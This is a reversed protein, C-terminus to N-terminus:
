AHEQRAAFTALNGAHHFEEVAGEELLQDFGFSINMMFVPRKKKAVFKAFSISQCFIKGIKNTALNLCIFYRSCRYVKSSIM